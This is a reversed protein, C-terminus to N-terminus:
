QLLALVGQSQQNAQALMATGAQQIIQTRALETTAKAYDADEIRSRSAQTNLSVNALSDATYELQNIAAGNTANQTSIAELATDLTALVSATTSTLGSIDSGLGLVSVVGTATTASTPATGATIVSTSDNYATTSTVVAVIGTGSNATTGAKETIVLTGTGTTATFAATFNTDANLLTAVAAVNAAGSVDVAGSAGAGVGDATFDLTLLTQAEADSITMTNSQLVAAGDGAGPTGTSTYAATSTTTVTPGADTGVLETITLTGTGATATYAAAFNTDANLAAAVGAVNTAAALAASNVNVTGAAVSTLSNAEDDSITLLSSGAVATAAGNLTVTPGTATYAGSKETITVGTNATSETALYSASFTSDANLATVLGATSTLGSVAVTVSGVEVSTMAAVGKASTAIVSSGASGAAYADTNLNGLDVTLLQGDNAGIQFVTASGSGDLVNRGNWQTTDAINDIGVLLAQFELEINAKDETTYTGSSAQVALERMRQLMNTIEGTAGEATQIMAVADNINRGAQDLGRIQATMKSAIAMGAADDAASNIRKGTSLQEMASSMARENKVLSNQALVANVNTNIVTM